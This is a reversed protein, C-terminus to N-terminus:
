NLWDPDLVEMELRVIKEASINMSDLLLNHNITMDEIIQEIEMNIDAAAIMLDEAQLKAWSMIELKKKLENADEKARNFLEKEKQIEIQKETMSTPHNMWVTVFTAWAVSLVM